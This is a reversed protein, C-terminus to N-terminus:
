FALMVFLGGIAFLTNFLRRIEDTLFIKCCEASTLARM